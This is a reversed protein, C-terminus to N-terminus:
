QVSPEHEQGGAWAAEQRERFSAYRDDLFMHAIPLVADDRAFVLYRAIIEALIGIRLPVDPEEDSLLKMIHNVINAHTMVNGEKTLPLRVM